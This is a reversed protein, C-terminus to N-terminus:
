APATIGASPILGLASRHVSRAGGCPRAGAPAGSARPADRTPSTADSVHREVRNASCETQDARGRQPRPAPRAPAYSLHDSRPGSLASTGPELGPAGVPVAPPAAHPEPEDSRDDPGYSLQSLAARARRLDPTRIGAAGGPSRSRLRQVSPVKRRASAFPQSRLVRSRSHRAAPRLLMSALPSTVRAAADPRPARPPLTAHRRPRRRPAASTPMVLPSGRLHACPPHRPAPPRPLVRGRPSIGRPPAPLRRDPSRRIPCGARARGPVQRCPRPPCRPFQFMETGRPLSLIGKTAALSRPPAWVRGATRAQRRQRSPTSRLAASAAAGTARRADSRSGFVAPVPSRLPHSDRLRGPQVVPPQPQTLVAPCAFDPPFRPRGRGLALYRWRGITFWYRSPVTFLVGALPTFSIRFGHAEPRDSGPASGPSPTGKTSHASSHDRAALSLCPCGSGSRVRTRFPSSDAPFSGFGPSRGM